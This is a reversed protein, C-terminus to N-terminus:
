RSIRYGRPTIMYKGKFFTSTNGIIVITNMDIIDKLEVARSLKVKRVSQKARGCHKVIGVPTDPPRRDLFENLVWSYLDKRSRSGPNYLAIVFDGEIATKVRKKILEEPTLLDSLSIAAFDHIIPAGLLAAAATAATIGPVIYIREQEDAEALQLVLGALSYVGADGGCILCVTRGERMAELAAECREVEKRMGTGIIRKGGLFPEVLSLYTSYGAAVDSREIVELAARPILEPNGPGISVVTLSGEM